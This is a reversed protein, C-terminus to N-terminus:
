MSVVDISDLQLHQHIPVRVNLMMRKMPIRVKKMKAVTPTPMTRQWYACPIRQEVQLVREHAVVGVGVDVGVAVDSGHKM